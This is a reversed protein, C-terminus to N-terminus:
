HHLFHEECNCGPLDLATLYMGHITTTSLQYNIPLITPRTFPGYSVTGKTKSWNM